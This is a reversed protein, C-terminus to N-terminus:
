APGRDRDGRRQVAQAATADIDSNSEARALLDRELSRLQKQLDALLDKPKIM